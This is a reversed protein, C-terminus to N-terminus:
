DGGAMEKVLWAAYHVLNITGDPNVPAGGDIDTQVMEVTVPQRGSATLIRAVDGVSLAQPNLPGGQRGDANSDTM